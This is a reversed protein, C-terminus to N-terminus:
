ARRRRFAVISLLALAALALAGASAGTEVGGPVTAAAAAAPPAPAALLKITPAPRPTGPAGIWSVVEGDAMTQVAPFSVTTGPLAPLRMSLGFDQFQMPLLGRGTAKWTISEFQEDYLQGFLEIPPDLPIKTVTTKWGEVPEYSVFVFGPPFKLEVKKTASDDREHPVRVDIRKFSGALAEGPQMTVHAGAVSPVVLGSLLAAVFALRRLRHM